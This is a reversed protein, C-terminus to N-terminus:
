TAILIVEPHLAALGRDLTALAGGHHAALAVLYSATIQRHGLVGTLMAADYGIDEPWFHHWPNQRLTDLYAVSELASAGARVQDRVLAGETIPCTAVESHPPDFWEWVPAHHIHEHLDAPLDITTRM